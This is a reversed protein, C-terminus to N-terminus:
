RRYSERAFSFGGRDEVSLWHGPSLIPARRLHQTFGPASLGITVRDGAPTWESMGREDPGSRRIGNLFL